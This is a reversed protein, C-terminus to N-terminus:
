EEGIKLVALFAEQPVDVSGVSKMRKKGEKQKDLLKRKRSIDGGYCKATVNKRLAKITTRAIIRSGIAAQIAVDFQQQPILDKLKVCIAQGHHYAKERHIIVSFADVIDGNLMIDLKILDSERYDLPEYDLGAYGRSISKLRDYFDFMVEGMPLEYKLTVKLEDLYDMTVFKGRKEEALQMISGVYEKPTYIHSVIYPELITSYKGPDPLRSPNECLVTDGNTMVVHYEVSPMTTIINAGFERDLREQVIEM